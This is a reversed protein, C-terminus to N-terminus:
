ASVTYEASAAAVAIAAPLSGVQDIANKTRTSFRDIGLLRRVQETRQRTGVKPLATLDAQQALMRAATMRSLAAATTLWGAGAPWGGVSPPRFPLQGMGRLAALLRRQATPELAGPALGLARLLGVTWEVPQKVLSTAADTFAPEAVVARLLAPSM